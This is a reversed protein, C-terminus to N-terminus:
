RSQNMLEARNRSEELSPVSWEARQEDTVADPDVEYLVWKGEDDRVYQTGYWQPQGSRVMLRDWSAAVLWRAPASSGLTSSITAFAHALRIDDAPEGHHFIMAANYYDQATRIEGAELLSMVAKRREEDQKRLEEWDITPGRRAAQDEAFMRALEANNQAFALSSALLLAALASIARRM